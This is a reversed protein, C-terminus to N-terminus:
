RRPEFTRRFNRAMRNAILNAILGIEANGRHPSYALFARWRANFGIRLLYKMNESAILATM